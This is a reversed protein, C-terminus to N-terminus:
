IQQLSVINIHNENEIKTKIKRVLLIECKVNKIQM